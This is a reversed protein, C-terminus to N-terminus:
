PTGPICVGSDEHYIPLESRPFGEEASRQADQLQLECEDRNYGALAEDFSGDPNLAVLQSQWGPYDVVCSGYGDVYGAHAACGNAFAQQQQQEAEEARRQDEERSERDAEAAAEQRQREEEAEAEQQALAEDESLQQDCRDIADNAEARALGARAEEVERLISARVRAYQQEIEPSGRSDGSLLYDAVLSGFEQCELHGAIKLGDTSPLTTGDFAPQSDPGESSQGSQAGSCSAAVLALVAVLAATTRRM